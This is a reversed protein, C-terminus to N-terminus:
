LLEERLLQIRAGHSKLFDLGSWNPEIDDAYLLLSWDAFEPEQPYEGEEDFCDNPRLSLYGAQAVDFTYYDGWHDSRRAVASTSLGAELWSNVEEINASRVGFLAYLRKM